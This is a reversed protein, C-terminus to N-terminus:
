SATPTYDIAGAYLRYPTASEGPICAILIYSYSDLDVVHDLAATGSSMSVSQANTAADGLDIPSSLNTLEKASLILEVSGTGNDMGYVTLGTLHAGDPLDPSASVCSIGSTASNQLYGQNSWSLTTSGPDIFSAASIMTRGGQAKAIAVGTARRMFASMAQRSVPQGPRYTGDAFGTSIGNTAMWAIDDHFPNSTPVDSFADTAWAGGAFAIATLAIAAVVATGARAARRKQPKLPLM